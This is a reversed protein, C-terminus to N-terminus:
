DSAATCSSVPSPTKGALKWAGLSGDAAISAVHVDAINVFDPSGAPKGNGGIVVLFGSAAVACHNARATPMKPGADWSMLAGSARNPTAAPAAADPAPTGGGSTGSSGCGAVFAAVAVAGMGWRSHM